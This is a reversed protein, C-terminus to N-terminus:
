CFLHASRAEYRGFHSGKSIFDKVNMNKGKYRLTDKSWSHCEIEALAEEQGHPLSKTITLTRSKLVSHPAKVRYLLRQNSDFLETNLPDSHTAYLEM